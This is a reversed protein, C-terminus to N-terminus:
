SIQNDGRHNIPKITYVLFRNASLFLNFYNINEKCFCKVALKCLAIILVYDLSLM